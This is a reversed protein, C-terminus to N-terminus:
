QTIGPNLSKAKDLDQQAKGSQGMAKYVQARGLYAKAFDPKLDIVKNFDALAKPNEKKQLFAWGRNYYADAYDPKLSILKDFDATAKSYDKLNFYAVGRYECADAFDPKLSLAKTFCEVAKSYNKNGFFHVMGLNFYNDGKSPDLSIAKEFDDKAKAYNKKEWYILGRYEYTNSDQSKLAVAQNLETMAQDYDKRLFFIEGRLAHNVPDDPALAKARELDALAKDYQKNDKYQGARRCYAEAAKSSYQAEGPKLSAAKALDIVAEDYKHQELYILGRQSYAEAHNPDLEIAKDFRALKEGATSAAMGKKLYDPAEAPKDTKTPSAPPTKEARNGGPKPPQTLKVPPGLPAGPISLWYIALGLLGLGAVAGGVWIITSRWWPLLQPQADRKQELAKGCNTCRVESLPHDAPAEATEQCHPCTVLTVPKALLATQFAKIDQFRDGADVALAKLLAQEAAAPIKIGLQSPPSLGDEHLRDQANSPREGTIARYLTAAAAYEDTWPGQKGKRRYQEEPAYGEKLIISFSQSHERAVFRAAGFDLLKIQGVKTIYINDPSVDRHLLGADHVERLADLVPVLIRLAQEFPIKGGRQRLYKEFDLGEVYNMVMYATGNAQFYDIASVIIPHNFFRATARAEEQFAALGYAFEQQATGAYISVRTQGESRTALQRPLYEKVAVKINLKEDWASYTIGFGGHGLMEDIRYRQHLRTNRSLYM